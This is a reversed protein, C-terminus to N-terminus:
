NELRLRSSLTLSKLFIWAAAFVLLVGAFGSFPSVFVHASTPLFNYKAAVWELGDPWASAFPSLMTGILLAGLLPASIKWGSSAKAFRNESLLYYAAVTLLAEGIGILAHVSLMAPLVRSFPVTGAIALEASCAFAAALVSVFALLGLALAKPMSKFFGRGTLSGMGAGIVAMNLVNAGLVGLGGGSFVLSQIALVLAMALIGFPTGMLASALMGGLLHGSTGHQVPFNMMQAAFIFATIAAFRGASPKEKSKMAVVVAAAVGVASVAATVPCMQGNLLDQPIHM